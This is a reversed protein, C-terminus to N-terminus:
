GSVTNKDGHVIVAKIIARRIEHHVVIRRFIVGQLDFGYLFMFGHMNRGFWGTVYSEIHINPRAEKGGIGGRPESQIQTTLRHDQTSHITILASDFM